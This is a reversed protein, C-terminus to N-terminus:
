KEKESLSDFLECFEAWAENLIEERLQICYTGHPGFAVWECDTCSKVQRPFQIVEAAM